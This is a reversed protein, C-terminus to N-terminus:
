GKKPQAIIQGPSPVHETAWTEIKQVAELLSSGALDTASAEAKKEFSERNGRMEGYSVLGSGTLLSCSSDIGNAVHLLLAEQALVIGAKLNNDTESAVANQLIGLVSLLIGQSWWGRPRGVLTQLLAVVATNRAVLDIDADWELYFCEPWFFSGVDSYLRATNKQLISSAEIQHRRPKSQLAKDIVWVATGSDIGPSLPWLQDVLALALDIQDLTVLAFLAGSKQSVPPETGAQTSMLGVARISTEMDLRKRNQEAELKLRNETSEQLRLSHADFSRKLLYGVLAVTATGIVGLLGLVAAAVQAGSQTSALNFLGIKWLLAFLAAFVVGITLVGITTSADFRKSTKTEM